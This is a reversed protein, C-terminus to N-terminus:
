EPPPAPATEPSPPAEKRFCWLAKTRRDELILLGDANEGLVRFRHGDLRVTGRPSVVVKEDGIRLTYQKVEDRSEENRNITVSGIDLVVGVNRQRFSAPVSPKYSHVTGTNTSEPVVWGEPVWIEEVVRENASDALLSVGALLLVLVLTKM